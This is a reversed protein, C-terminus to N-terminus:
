KHSVEFNKLINFPSNSREAVCHCETENLNAGCIPCLGRCNEGCIPRIPLALIIQERLLDDICIENGEYYGLNLDEANLELDEVTLEEEGPAMLLELNEEVHFPISEGCRACSLECEVQLRGRLHVTTGRCVLRVSGAFSERDLAVVGEPGNELGDLNVQRGSIQLTMGQRGIESVRIIMQRAPAEETRPPKSQLSPTIHYARAHQRNAM